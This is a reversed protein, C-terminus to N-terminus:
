LVSTPNTTGKMAVCIEDPPSSCYLDMAARHSYRRSRYGQAVPLNGVFRFFMEGNQKKNDAQGPAIVSNATAVSDTYRPGPGTGRAANNCGALRVVLFLRHRVVRYGGSVGNNCRALRIVLLLVRAFGVGDM